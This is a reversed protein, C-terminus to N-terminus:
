RKGAKRERQAEVHSWFGSKRGHKKALAARYNQHPDILIAADEDSALADLKELYRAAHGYAPSRARDLIDDLLARYLITAAASRDPELTEAAVLLVHYYRGQWHARHEIVLTAALDRRPWELLFSLARYKQAFSMAHAFVKDLVEFEAFDPLHAVHDRLMAADLTTEFTTWRLDQAAAFDGKAVLVRIELRTRAIDPGGHPGSGDAVDDYTLIKMGLRGPKRVWELAEVHRDADCLREAIAM